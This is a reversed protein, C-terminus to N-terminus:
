NRFKRRVEMYFRYVLPSSEDWEPYADRMDSVVEDFTSTENIRDLTINFQESDGDFLDRIFTLRDNFSLASQIMEVKPGPIDVMWPITKSQAVDAITNREVFLDAVMTKPAAHVENLDTVTFFTEETEPEHVIVPAAASVSQPASVPERVAVPEPVAVPESVVAPGPVAVPETAVAPESSAVPEPVAAPKPVAAPEPVTVPEPRIVEPAAVVRPEEAVKKELAVVKEKLIQIEERQAELEAVLQLSVRELLSKIESIRDAM